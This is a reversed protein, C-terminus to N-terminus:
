LQGNSLLSGQVCLERALFIGSRLTPVSTRWDAHPEYLMLDEYVKELEDDLEQVCGARLLVVMGRVDNIMSDVMAVTNRVLIKMNTTEAWLAASQLNTSTFLMDMELRQDESVPKVLISGLRFGRSSRAWLPVRESYTLLDPAGWSLPLQDKGLTRSHFNLARRVLSQSQLSLELFHISRDKDIITSFDLHTRRNDNITTM